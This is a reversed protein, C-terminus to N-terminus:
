PVASEIEPHGEVLKYTITGNRQDELEWTSGLKLGTLDLCHETPTRNSPISTVTLCVSNNKSRWKGESTAGHLNFQHFKGEDYFYILTPGFKNSVMLSNHLIVEDITAHSAGSAYSATPIASFFLVLICAAYQLCRQTAM